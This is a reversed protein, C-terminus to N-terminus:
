DVNVYFKEGQIVRQQTYFTGLLQGSKMNDGGTIMRTSVGPTPADGGGQETAAFPYEDCQCGPINEDTSGDPITCEDSFSPTGVRCINTSFRRNANILSAIKQRSLANNGSDIPLISDPSPVYRGPLGSNQADRIHAASQKVLSDPDADSITTLIAPAREFICGTSTSMALGVDCRILPLYGGNVYSSGDGEVSQGVLNIRGELALEFSKKKAEEDQGMMLNTNVVVEQSLGPNLTVPLSNFSTCDTILGCTVKPSFQAIPGAPNTYVTRFKFKVPWSLVNTPNKEAYVYGTIKATNVYAGQSQADYLDIEREFKMCFSTRDILSTDSESGVRKGCSESVDPASDAGSQLATATMVITNLAGFFIEPNLEESTSTERLSQDDAQVVNNLLFYFLISILYIINKM